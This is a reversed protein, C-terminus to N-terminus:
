KKKDVVPELTVLVPTKLPPIKATDAEFMLEAAEKSSKIPLDMMSDPFNSVSIVEGNNAMYYDPVKGEPDKFFRSGAFVWDHAMAKNTTKDKIWEGAPVTKVKGKERYTVSVKIKTGTAAKYKPVFKTPSGATAGAAVLAFHIERADADIHVISEHEKTNLKCLFVELPGERLCVEALLHVRRTGDDKKEFFINKKDKNLVKYSDPIPPAEEPPEEKREEVEPPRAKDKLDSKRPPDAADASDAAPSVRPTPSTSARSDTAPKTSADGFECGVVALVPLIYLLRNM